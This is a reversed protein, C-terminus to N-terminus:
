PSVECPVFDLPGVLDHTKYDGLLWAAFSGCLANQGYPSQHFARNRKEAACQAAQPTRHTSRIVGAIGVADNRCNDDIVAYKSM